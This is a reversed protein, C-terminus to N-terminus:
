DLLEFGRRVRDVFDDWLERGSTTAEVAREFNARWGAVRAPAPRWLQVEALEIVVGLAALDPAVAGLSGRLRDLVRGAREGLEDIQGRGGPLRILADLRPGDCHEGLVAAAAASRSGRAVVARPHRVLTALADRAAPPLGSSSAEARAILDEGWRLLKPPDLWAVLGIGVALEAPDAAAPPLRVLDHLAERAADSDYIGGQPIEM